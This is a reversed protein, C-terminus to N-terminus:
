NELGLEELVNQWGPDSKFELRAAYSAYEEVKEYSKKMNKKDGLKLYTKAQYVHAKPDAFNIEEAAQYAALASAYDSAFYHSNGLKYYAGLNRRDLQIVKEYDFAARNYDKLSYYLDGRNYYATFTNPRIDIISTLADIQAGVDGKDAAIRAAQSYNTIAQDFLGQAQYCRAKGTIAGIDRPNKALMRDYYRLAEHYNGAAENEYALEGNSKKSVAKKSRSLALDYSITKGPEVTIKMSKTKYGSKRASLTYKGPKVRYTDSGKGLPKDDLYTSTGKPTVKLQLMGYNQRSGPPARNEVTRPAQQSNKTSASATSKGKYLTVTTTKGGVVAIKEEAVPEGDKIHQITYLGSELGDFIFFGAKNTTVTRDLELIRVSQDALPYGSSGSMITGVLQGNGSGFFGGFLIILVILAAAGGGGFKIMKERDNPKPRVEFIKEGIFVEDGPFVRTGGTLTLKDGSVLIIGKSRTIQPSPSGPKGVRPLPTVNLSLSSEKKQEREPTESPIEKNSEVPQKSTIRVAKEAAPQAPQEPESSIVPDKPEQREPQDPGSSEQKEDAASTESASEKNSEAERAELEQLAKETETQAPQEDRNTEAPDKQEQGQTQDPVPSDKREEKVMVATKQSATKEMQGSGADDDEGMDLVYPESRIKRKTPEKDATSAPMPQVEDQLNEGMIFDIPDSVQLDDDSSDSDNSRLAQNEIDGEGDNAEHTEIIAPPGEDNLPKNCNICLAADKVINEEGCNQCIM